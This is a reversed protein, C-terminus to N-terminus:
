NQVIQMCSYMQLTAFSPTETLQYNYPLYTLRQTMDFVHPFDVPIYSPETPPNLCLSLFSTDENHIYGYCSCNLVFSASVAFYSICVLAFGILFINSCTVVALSQQVALNFSCSNFSCPRNQFTLTHTCNKLFLALFHKFFAFFPLINSFKPLFM